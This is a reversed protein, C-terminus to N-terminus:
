RIIKLSEYCLHLTLRRVAFLPVSPELCIATTKAKNRACWDTSDPVVVTGKKIPHKYLKHSGKQRKFCWGDLQIINIVEKVKM